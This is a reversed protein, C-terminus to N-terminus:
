KKKAFYGGGENSRKDVCVNRRWKWTLLWCTVKKRQRKVVRLQAQADDRKRQGTGGEWFLVDENTILMEVVLRQYRIDNLATMADLDPARMLTPGFVIGLNESPMLNEKECQTVRSPSLPPPHIHLPFYHDLFWSFPFYCLQVALPTHPLSVLKNLGRSTVWSTDCHSATLLRCCSWPSTSLSWGNRQTRFRQSVCVCPICCHPFAVHRIVYAPCMPFCSARSATEIFHPYADYTILPIPLERFYLKLAGAIINIDEYANSSIDAKEGDTSSFLFLWHHYLPLPPPKM